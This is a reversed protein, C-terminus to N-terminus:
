FCLLIDRGVNTPVVNTPVYPVLLCVQLQRELAEQDDAPQKEKEEEDAKSSGKTKGKTARRSQRKQAPESAETPKSASVLSSSAILVHM